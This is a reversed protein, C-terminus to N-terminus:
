KLKEQIKISSEIIQLFIEKVFDKNKVSETKELITKERRNNQIPIKKQLKLKGVILVIEARQDLLKILSRDIRNIKMREEILKKQINNSKM